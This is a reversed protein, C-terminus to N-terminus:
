SRDTSRLAYCLVLDQDRLYLRGDAVVPHPYNTRGSRQPQRFEGLLEFREPNCRLLLVRDEESRAILMGDVALLSCVGLRQQWRVRGTAFELCVLVGTQSCGYVLGEVLVCGGTRNALVTNFYVEEATWEDGDRSIRALGCGRGYGSSSFVADGSVIPTAIHATGSVTNTYRWLLAGTEADVGIVGGMTFQVYQRRGAIEAAVISAYGAKDGLPVQWILSGDQKHLALLTAQSGGPTCVLKEGDVLVSESYGWSPIEGGFETVLDRKWILTGTEADLAALDGNLGLAYVRGSDYTPTSRPGPYGAGNHRVPGLATAWAQRGGAEVDLAIVYEQGERDGMVYLQGGAVSPTSFGEGAGGAVWLL